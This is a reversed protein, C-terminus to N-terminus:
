SGKFLLLIYYFFQMTPCCFILIELDKRTFIEARIYYNINYGVGM